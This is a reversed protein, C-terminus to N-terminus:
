RVTIDGNTGATRTLLCRYRLRVRVFRARAAPAPHRDRTAPLADGPRLTGTRLVDILADAV